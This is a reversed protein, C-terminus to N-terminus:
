LAEHVRQVFLHPDYLHEIVELSVIADFRGGFATRFDDYVSGVAFRVRDESSSGLDVGSASSDIASVRYGADALLRAFWGDGCGADLVTMGASRHSGLMRMVPTVLYSSTHSPEVSRYAYESM